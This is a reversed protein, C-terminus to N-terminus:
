FCGLRRPSFHINTRQVIDYSKTRASFRVWDLTCSMTANCLSRRGPPHPPREFCPWHPIRLSSWGNKQRDSIFANQLSDPSLHVIMEAYQPTYRIYRSSDIAKAHIGSEEQLWTRFAIKDFIHCAGSRRICCFWYARAQFSSSLPVVPDWRIPVVITRSSNYMCTVSKASTSTFLQLEDWM